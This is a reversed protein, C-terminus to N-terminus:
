EDWTCAPVALRLVAGVSVLSAIPIDRKKETGLRIRLSFRDDETRLFGAYGACGKIRHAHAEFNEKLVEPSRRELYGRAADEGLIRAAESGNIYLARYDAVRGARIVGYLARGLEDESIPSKREPRHLSSQKQQERKRTAVLLLMLGLLGLGETRHRVLFPEEEPHDHKKGRRRARHARVKEAVTGELAEDEAAESPTEEHQQGTDPARMQESPIEQAWASSVGWLGVMVWSTACSRLM